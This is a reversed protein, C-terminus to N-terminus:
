VNYDQCSLLSPLSISQWIVETYHHHSLWLGFWTGDQWQPLIDHMFYPLFDIPPEVADLIRKITHYPHKLDEEIEKPSITSTPYLHGKLPHLSEDYGMLLGAFDIYHKIM